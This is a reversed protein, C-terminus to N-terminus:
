PSKSVKKHNLVDSMLETFRDPARTPKLTEASVFSHVTYGQALLEKTANNKLEYEIRVRVQPLDNIITKVILEDDYRASKLYKAHAEVVPLHYGMQELEGYPLGIRRLLDARGQEFYEFFKAYYAVKMQDTDAYRVRVITETSFM